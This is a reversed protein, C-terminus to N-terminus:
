GCADQKVTDSPLKGAEFDPPYAMQGLFEILTRTPRGSMGKKLYSTRGGEYMTGSTDIHAWNKHCTFQNLFATTTCSIGRPYLEDRQLTSLDSSTFDKIEREYMRWLPCKWLRDGSHIAAIKLLQWLKENKTFLGSASLGFATRVEKTLTAVSVIYKPNFSQAFCLTDALMLTGSFDRPSVLISKGSLSKVIDKPRGATGGPMNEGIALLGVVNIPLGLAAMAKFAAVIVAAGAMDGRMHLMEKCTKLCLGGSNFTLGKGILVVPPIGPDCGNYNLQVLIPSQPSGKTNELFANMNNEQLWRESRLTVNVNTKCLTQVITYALARPTMMNAPTEMLKRAFNQAEAKELGIRWKKMDCDGYLILDPMKVKRKTNPLLHHNEWVALHAGEAASEPDDFGEVYIKNVKMAQLKLIGAGVAKRVNEKAEDRGESKNYGAGNRGLGAIAVVDFTPDIKPYVRVEGLRPLPTVKLADILRGNINHNFITATKTLCVINSTTESSYVGLIIGSGETYSGLCSIDGGDNSLNWSHTAPIEEGHVSYCRQHPRIILTSSKINSIFRLFRFM